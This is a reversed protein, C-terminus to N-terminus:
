RRPSPSPSPLAFDRRIAPGGRPILVQRIPPAVLPNLESEVALLLGCQDARALFQEADALDPRRRAALAFLVGGPELHGNGLGVGVFRDDQRSRVVSFPKLDVVIREVTDFGVVLLIIQPRQAKKVSPLSTLWGLHQASRTLRAAVTAAPAHSLNVTAASVWAHIDFVLAHKDRILLLGAEAVAVDGGVVQLKDYNEVEDKLSHGRSDASVIVGDTGNCV